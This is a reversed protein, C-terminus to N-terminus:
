SVVHGGFEVIEHGDSHLPIVMRASDLTIVLGLDLVEDVDRVPAGLLRVLHAAYCPDSAEVPQGGVVEIRPLRYANMTGATWHLQVYDAVFTVSELFGGRIPDLWHPADYPEPPDVDALDLDTFSATIFAHRAAEEGFARSGVPPSCDLFYTEEDDSRLGTADWRTCRRTRLAVDYLHHGWRGRGRATITDVQKM